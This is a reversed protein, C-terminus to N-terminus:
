AKTGKAFFLKNEVGGKVGTVDEPIKSAEENLLYEISCENCGANLLFTRIEVADFGLKSIIHRTRSLLNESGHNHHQADLYSQLQSQEPTSGDVILLIGGVRLREVLRSVLSQPDSVHHLAMSIVAIDFDFFDKSNITTDTEDEPKSSYNNDLLDGRTAYMQQESFGASRAVNNFRDVMGDSVDIGRIIDM